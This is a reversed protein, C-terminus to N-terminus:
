EDEMIVLVKLSEKAQRAVGLAEGIQELPFCHTILTKSNIRKNQIFKLAARTDLHSASYSTVFTIESFFFLNLDISFTSAPPLPAFLYITAGKGALEVGEGIADMHGTSVIVVDAGRGGNVEHVKKLVNEKKFNIVYDAGIEAAKKLRYNVSDIVIIKAAGFLRALQTHVLGMFGAGIIAVTDGTRINAKKIGKICCGIPEILTAEVYSIDDTLKLTDKEVNLAPVIIYEAFGGPYIATEKFTQCLTYNGRECYHCVFCPVHHHVFVRDGVEIDKVGHGAEVVIGAPEHGFFTPVRPDMYWDTIDSGCIGCAKVKIKLEGSKVDPIPVDEIKIDGSSYYKAAKITQM